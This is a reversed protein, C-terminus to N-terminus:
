QQPRLLQGTSLRPRFSLSSIAPAAVKYTIQFDSETPINVSGGVRVKAIDAKKDLPNPGRHGLLSSIGGLSKTQKSLLGHM